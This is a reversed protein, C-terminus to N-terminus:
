HPPQLPYLWSEIGNVHEGPFAYGDEHIQAQAGTGVVFAVSFPSGIYLHGDIISYSFRDLARPAPGSTRNGENDYQSDHCPCGFGSPMVPIQTVDKYSKKQAYKPQGNPETPCGLHVCRNSLITFSPLQGVLGNYRVFATERSVTGESPRSTFTTVVYEGVPYDSMPGLDHSPVGQKLFAPAIVFGLVPLTVMGGIVGGLGLTSLELFVNRTVREPSPAAVPVPPAPRPRTARTEPPLTEVVAVGRRDRAIDRVWLYAFIVAIVAGVAVVTASVVFGVLLAVVGVAFGVPWLSQGPAHLHERSPEVDGRLL